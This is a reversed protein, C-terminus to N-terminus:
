EPLIAPEEDPPEASEAHAPGAWGAGPAAVPPVFRKPPEALGLGVAVLLLTPVLITATWDILFALSGLGADSGAVIVLATVVASLVGVVGGAIAAALALTLAPSPRRLDDRGRVAAWLVAGWGALAIVGFAGSWTFLRDIGPDGLDPHTSLADLLLGLAQIVIGFAVLNSLGDVAESVPRPNLRALGRALGVRAAAVVTSGLIGIWLSLAATEVSGGFGVIARLNGIAFEAVALVVASWLVWPTATAADPRRLVLVAPLVIWLDRPAFTAVLSLPDAFVGAMSPQLLGVARGLVDLAALAIFTRALLPLTNWTRDLGDRLWPPLGISDGVGRDGQGSMAPSYRRRGASWRVTPYLRAM